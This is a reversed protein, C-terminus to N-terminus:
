LHPECCKPAAHLHGVYRNRLLHRVLTTKGSGLFGSIIVCPLDSRRSAADKLLLREYNTSLNMVHDMALSSTSATAICRQSISANFM